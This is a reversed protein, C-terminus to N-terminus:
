EMETLEKEIRDRLSPDGGGRTVAATGPSDPAEALQYRRRTTWHSVLYGVTLMGFLVAVGPMVWAALNLGEPPPSSLVKLGHEEVLEAVIEDDTIGELLRKEIQRRLPIASPCNQHNCVRLIMQCSCQCVLRDSVVNFRRALEPDELSTKASQGHVVTTTLVLIALAGVALRVKSVRPTHLLTEKM